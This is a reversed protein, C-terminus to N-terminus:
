KPRLMLEIKKELKECYTDYLGKASKSDPAEIWDKLAQTQQELYTSVESMENVLKKIGEEKKATDRKLQQAYRQLVKVFAANREAADLAEEKPLSGGQFAIQVLVNTSYANVIGYTVLESYALDAADSAQEAFALGSLLTIGLLVASLFSVIKM